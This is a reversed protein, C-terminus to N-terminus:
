DGDFMVDDTTITAPSYNMLHQYLLNEDKIKSKYTWTSLILGHELCYDYYVQKMLNKKISVGSFGKDVTTELVTMDQDVNSRGILVATVPKCAEGYKTQVYRNIRELPDIHISIFRASRLTAGQDMQYVMDAVMEVASDSMVPDKLEIVPVMNYQRCIDLFQQFFCVQVLRSDSRIEDATMEKVVRNVDYIRNFTDDHNIVIEFGSETHKTEWIDCECGWFGHQGAQVFAAATNETVTKHLGRHAIWAVDSRGVTYVTITAEGKKKSGGTVRATIIATGPAITRVKGKSNVMAVTTNSSKWRVKKKAAKKPKVKATFQITRGPKAYEMGSVTIRNVRVKKGKAAAAKSSTVAGKNAANGLVTSFMMTACLVACTMLVLTLIHHSNRM